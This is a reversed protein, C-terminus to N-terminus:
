KLLLQVFFGWHQWHDSFHQISSGKLPSARIWAEGELASQQDAPQELFTKLSKLINQQRLFYLIKKAYYKLTLSKRIVPASCLLSFNISWCHLLVLAKVIVSAESLILSILLCGFGNIVTYYHTTLMSSRSHACHQVWRKDSNLIFLLEDECFHEPMGLSEIEAFSDGLVQGVCPQTVSRKTLASCPFCVNDQVFM